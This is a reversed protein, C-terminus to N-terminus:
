LYLVLRSNLEFGTIAYFSHVHQVVLLILNFVLKIIKTFEYINISKM